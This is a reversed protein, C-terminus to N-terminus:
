KETLLNLRYNHIGFDHDSSFNSQLNWGFDSTWRGLESLGYLTRPIHNEKLKNYLEKSDFDPHKCWVFNAESPQVEFGLKSLESEMVGRLSKVIRINGQLWHQDSIAATAGAIALADCNYSDKVKQMEAITEPNAVAFGFRLGALGYSKSLTRTVIINSAEKALHLCNAAAFDVYAEDVVLPCSISNALKLVGEPSIVTGSPSNPNPLFVLSLDKDDAGFTEPLSWNEDFQIEEIAAGQIDALTRYLVYSPYPIRIKSEPSVFTRTIITLLDDSGNGCLIWDQDVGLVEAAAIRFSKAMADPYVNLKGAASDHIADIVKNSPAFPNENTNLKIFKGFAPQEGSVYGKMQRIEPRVSDQITM